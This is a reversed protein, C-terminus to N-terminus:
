HFLGNFWHFASTLFIQRAPRSRKGFEGDQCGSYSTYSPLTLWFNDCWPDNRWHGRKRKCRGRRGSTYIPWTSTTTASKLQDLFFISSLGNLHVQQKRLLGVIQNKCWRLTITYVTYLDAVGTQNGSKPPTTIGEEDLQQLLKAAPAPPIFHLLAIWSLYSSQLLILFLWM